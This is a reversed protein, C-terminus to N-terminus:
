NLLGLLRMENKMEELHKESPPCLPLRLSGDGFGILKMATKILIPNPERFLCETLRLLRLHLRASEAIKGREFLSCVKKVEGPILNSLVSIVGSAGVSLLPLTLEDNGSYLAFGDGCERLITEALSVNGSAEKIGVINEHGSLIRCVDPSLSCGTRSPVNYLICPIGSADAVATFNRVMGEDSANNFYPSVLLAADAGARSAFKTMEVAHSTDNSGTGAIVPVRGGTKEVAFSICRRHEEDSLTPNEGTTGCVVLADAGGGIQYEILRGFAEFDISGGDKESFPTILATACGRFVAKKRSVAFDNNTM